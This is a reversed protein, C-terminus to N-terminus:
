GRCRPHPPPSFPATLTEVVDGVREALAPDDTTVLWSTGRSRSEERVLDCLARRQAPGMGGGLDDVLVLPARLAMARALALASRRPPSLESPLVGALGALGFRELEEQAVTGLRRRPVRGATRMAFEVNELVTATAFLAHAEGAAPSFVVAMRRQIRRLAAGRAGGVDKGAVFVAGDDPRELGALLRFVTTKGTGRAGLVATVGGMPAGLNCGGLAVVGGLRKEVDILEFAWTV